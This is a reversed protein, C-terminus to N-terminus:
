RKRGNITISLKATTTSNGDTIFKLYKHTAATITNNGAPTLTFTTGEASATFSIVRTGLSAADGGRTVTITSDAISIAGHLVFVITDIICNTPLPIIEFTAPASVDAMIVTDQFPLSRFAGSAAGDSVWVQDITAAAAGKPEHREGDPIDVHEIAM